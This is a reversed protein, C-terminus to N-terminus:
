VTPFVVPILVIFKKKFEFLSQHTVESAIQRLTVFVRFLTEYLPGKASVPRMTWFGRPLGGSPCRFCHFTLSSLNSNRQTRIQYM